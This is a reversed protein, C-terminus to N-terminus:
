SASVLLAAISSRPACGVTPRTSVLSSSRDPPLVSRYPWRADSSEGGTARPRSRRPTSPRARGFGEYMAVSGRRTPDTVFAPLMAHRQADTGCAGVLLAANGSWTAAAAIGPDGHALGEIALLQTFPDPIGGGGYAVDVPTTLGIDLLGNWVRDPVARSAEAERAAPDVLAAAVDAVVTTVADHELERSLDFM